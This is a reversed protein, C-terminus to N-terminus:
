NAPGYLRLEYFTPWEYEGTDTVKVKIYRWNSTGANQFVKQDWLLVEGGAVRTGEAVLTWGNDDSLEAQSIGDAFRNDDNSAYVRYGPRRNPYEWAITIEDIARPEGLDIGWTHGPSNDAGCWRTTFDEDVAWEPLRKWDLPGPWYSTSVIKGEREHGDLNVKNNFDEKVKEVENTLSSIQTIHEIRTDDFEHPYLEWFGESSEWKGGAREYNLRNCADVVNIPLPGALSSGFYDLIIFNVTRYDPLLNNEAHRAMQYLKRGDNNKSAWRRNGCSCNDDPCCEILFLRYAIDRQRAQPPAWASVLNCLYELKSAHYFNYFNPNSYDLSRYYGEDIISFEGTERSHFFMVNKGSDIMERLTPWPDPIYARGPSFVPQTVDYNYIYQSLGTWELRSNVDTYIDHASCDCGYDSCRKVDSIRVTIVQNPHDEAFARIAAFQDYLTLTTHFIGHCLNMLCNIDFEVFRIGSRLQQTVTLDQNKTCTGMWCDEAWADGSTHSNHTGPFTIKNYRQDLMAYTIIFGGDASFVPDYGGGVPGVPLPTQIGVDEECSSLSLTLVVCFCVAALARTYNFRRM